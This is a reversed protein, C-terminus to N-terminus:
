YLFSIIVANRRAIEIEAVSADSTNTIRPL